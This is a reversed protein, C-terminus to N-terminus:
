YNVKTMLEGETTTKLFRSSAQQSGMKPEYSGLYGNVIKKVHNLAM